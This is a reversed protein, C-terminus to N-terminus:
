SINVQSSQLNHMVIQQHQQQHHHHHHTDLGGYHPQQQQSVSGDSETTGKRMLININQKRNRM